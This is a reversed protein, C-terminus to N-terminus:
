PDIASVPLARNTVLDSQSHWTQSQILNNEAFALAALRQNRFVVIQGSDGVFWPPAPDFGAWRAPRFFPNRDHPAKDM